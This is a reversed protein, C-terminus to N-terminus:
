RITLDIVTSITSCTGEPPAQMVSANNSVIVIRGTGNRVLDLLQNVLAFTGVYHLLVATRGM